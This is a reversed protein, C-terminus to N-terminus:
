KIFNMKRGLYNKGERANEMKNVWSRCTKSFMAKKKESLFTFPAAFDLAEDPGTPASKLGRCVVDVAM